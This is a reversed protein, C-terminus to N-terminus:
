GLFRSHRPESTNAREERERRDLEEILRDLEPSRDLFHPKLSQQLREGVANCISRITKLDIEERHPAERSAM